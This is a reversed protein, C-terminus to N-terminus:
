FPKLLAEKKIELSKGPIRVRGLKTEMAIYLFRDSGVTLDVIKEESVFIIKAM